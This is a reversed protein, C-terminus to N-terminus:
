RKRLFIYQWKPSSESMLDCENLMIKIASQTSQWWADDFCIIGNKKVKPLWHQVDFIASQESHNGDIHIFDISEDDFQLYAQASSTRMIQFRSDLGNEHMKKIFKNMVKDLDVKGWYKAHAEDKEEYGELCLDNTWPDIAYAIGQNKFALTSVIPFFSSGGYVGLEVCADSPNSLLLNMIQKAKEKPCWGPFNPQEKLVEIQYADWDDLIPVSHLSKM